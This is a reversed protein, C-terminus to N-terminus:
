RKMGNKLLDIAGEVIEDIDREPEWVVFRQGIFHMMGMISWAWSEIHGNRIEEDAVAQRLAQQYGEAFSQYYAHHIEPDVFQSEQLIRYLSPHEKIYELFTRLGVREAEIRDSLDVIANSLLSRINRNIYLVLERLVDEKCKFYLYFTGQGIGARMAIGSISGEHFGKEGFEQEAAQLIKELTQQGRKTKPPSVLSLKSLAEM